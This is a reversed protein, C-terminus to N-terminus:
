PFLDFKLGLGPFAVLALDQLQVRALVLLHQNTHVEM